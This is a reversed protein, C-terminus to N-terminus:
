RNSEATEDSETSETTFDDEGEKWPEESGKDAGEDSHNEEETNVAQYSTERNGKFCRRIMM